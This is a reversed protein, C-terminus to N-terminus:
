GVAAPMTWKAAGLRIMLPLVFVGTLGTIMLIVPIAVGAGAAAGATLAAGVIFFASIFSNAAIAGARVHAGSATAMIAYLPVSFVGGAVALVILDAAIRWAAWQAFFAGPSLAVQSVPMARVAFLLEIGALALVILAWPAARASVQGKLLRAVAISGAAIGVSFTALFATAVGESANLDGKVLPIFQTTYVTGLGWFWSIAITADRVAPNTYTGRLITRTATWPNWDVPAADPAPPAPPIARAGLWGVVAVILIGIAALDVPMLGGLVQGTLIAVFTGAEILGSGSLMERPHLHQPLIAYKIPSFFTSHVGLLFIVTMLLPISSGHLAFAGIGMIGIEAAKVVRAIRAKDVADALTGAIGSFLIFPLMLMGAAVSVLGAAGAPDDAMLRYTVLFLMATKFLNDNLANLFQTVFLPAFRRTTLLTM